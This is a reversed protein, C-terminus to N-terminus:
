GGKVEAKPLVKISVSNGFGEAVVSYNQPDANLKDIMEKLPQIEDLKAEFTLILDVQTKVDM